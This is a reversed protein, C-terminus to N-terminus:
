GQHGAPPRPVSILTDENGDDDGLSTAGAAPAPVGSTSPVAPISPQTAETGPGTAPSQGEAPKSGRRGHAVEVLVRKGQARAAGQVVTRIAHITKGERGIVKGVESQDVKFEYVTARDTLTETVEVAEKNSVLSRALFLVLEKV